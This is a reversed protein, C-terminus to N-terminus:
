KKKSLVARVRSNCTSVCEHVVLREDPRTSTVASVTWTRWTRSYLFRRPLTSGFSTAAQSSADFLLNRTEPLAEIIMLGGLAQATALRSAGCIASCHQVCLMGFPGPPRNAGNRGYKQPM